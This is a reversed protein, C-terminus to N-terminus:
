DKAKVLFYGQEVANMPAREKIREKYPKSYWDRSNSLKDIRKTEKRLIQSISAPGQDTQVIPWTIGKDVTWGVIAVQMSRGSPSVNPPIVYFGHYKDVLRRWLASSGKSLNDSSAFAGFKKIALEYMQQGIGLGIFQHDVVSSSAYNVGGRTDIFLVAIPRWSKPSTVVIGYKPSFWLTIDGKGRIAEYESSKVGYESVYNFLSSEHGRSRTSIDNPSFANLRKQAQLEM